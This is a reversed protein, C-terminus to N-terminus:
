LSLVFLSNAAADSLLHPLAMATLLGLTIGPPIALTTRIHHMVRIDRVSMGMWRLTVDQEQREPKQKVDAAYKWMGACFLLALGLLLVYIMEKELAAWREQQAANTTETTCGLGSIQKTVTEAAGMNTVRVLICAYTKGQGQQQLLRRAAAQEMYAQATNERDTFVGSVGATLSTDNLTLTLKTDPFSLTGTKNNKDKFAKTTSKSLVLWPMSGSAPFMTGSQMEVELYDASIGVVTVAASHDGSTLTAPLEYVGSAALADPLLLIEAITDENLSIGEGALVKLECPESKEARVTKAAACFFYIGMVGLATLLIFVPLWGRGMTRRALSFKDSIRM